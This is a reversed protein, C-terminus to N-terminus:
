QGECHFVPSDDDHLRETMMDEDARLLLGLTDSAAGGASRHANQARQVALQALLADAVVNLNGGAAAEAQAVFAGDHNHIRLTDPIAFDLGVINGVNHGRVQAGSLKYRAEHPAVRRRHLGHGDIVGRLIEGHHFGFILGTDRGVVEVLEGAAEHGGARQQGRQFQVNEGGDAISRRCLFHGLLDSGGVAGGFHQEVRQDCELQQLLAIAREVVGGGAGPEKGFARAVVGAGAQQMGGVQPLAPGGEGVGDAFASGNSGAYTVIVPRLDNM